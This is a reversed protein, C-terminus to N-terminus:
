SRALVTAAVAIAEQELPAQPYGVTLCESLYQRLFPDIGGLREYQATHVLEHVILERGRWCDQRIFIGYGLTLGRTESTLFNVADCAARLAPQDPRPISQVPLLRAAQPNSVSAARADDMEADTLPVGLALIHRQQLSAWQGALPLLAPLQAIVAERDM